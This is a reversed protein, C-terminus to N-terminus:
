GKRWLIFTVFPDIRSMNKNTNNSTRSTYFNISFPIILQKQLHAPYDFSAMLHLFVKQLLNGCTYDICGIPSNKTSSLAHFTYNISKGTMFLNPHLKPQRPICNGRFVRAKKGSVLNLVLLQKPSTRSKSASWCSQLVRQLHPKTTCPNRKQWLHKQASFRAM